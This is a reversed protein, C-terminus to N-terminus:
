KWRTLIKGVEDIEGLAQSSFAEIADVIVQRDCNFLEKATTTRGRHVYESRVEFQKLSKKAQEEVRGCHIFRRRYTTMWDKAGGYGENLQRRRERTETAGIKHLCLNESWAVYVWGDEHYKRWTTLAVPRCQICHGKGLFFVHGDKCPLHPAFAVKGQLRAQELFEAREMGRADLVRELTLKQKRLFRVQNDDLM